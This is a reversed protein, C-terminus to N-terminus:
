SESEMNRHQDAKSDGPLKMVQMADLSRRHQHHLRPKGKENRRYGTEAVEVAKHNKCGLLSNPRRIRPTSTLGTRDAPKREDYDSVFSFDAASATVVSWEISTESPEYRSAPTMCGSMGDSTQKSFIPQTSCSINEIEFLDSSVDSEGDEYIQSSASNSPLNQAKPFPIADWTLVSLKRELNTAIEEKKITHSGFVELSKRPDEELFKLKQLNQIQLNQVGSNVTPLVLYDERKPGINKKEFSPSRFQDDKALRSQPQKRGDSMGAVQPGPFFWRENVKKQGTHALNRRTSPLLATQSNWSSESSVSPTGLRGKSKMRHLDVSRNEIPHEHAFKNGGNDHISRPTQDDEIRMNFYKEAGFVSIEGEEAKPKELNIPITSIEQNLTIDPQPFQISETLKVVFNQQASTLYSFSADRLDTNRSQGDM